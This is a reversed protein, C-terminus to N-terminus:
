WNLPTGIAISGLYITNWHVGTDWFLHHELASKHLTCCEHTAHRMWVHCLDNVISRVCECTVNLHSMVREKRQAQCHAHPSMGWSHSVHSMWMHCPATMACESTCHRMWAYCSKDVHSTVWERTVHSKWTHCSENLRSMVCEYTVYHAWM